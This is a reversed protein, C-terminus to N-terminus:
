KAWEPGTVRTNKKSLRSSKRPKPWPSMATSVEGEGEFGAQGWTPALLFKQQLAELDEWAAM